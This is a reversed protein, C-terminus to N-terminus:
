NKQQFVMNFPLNVLDWVSKAGSKATGFATNLTGTLQTVVPMITLNILKGM